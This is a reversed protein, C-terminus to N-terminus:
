FAHHLLLFFSCLRNENKSITHDMEFDFVPITYAQTILNKGRSIEIVNGDKNPIDDTSVMDTLSIFNM